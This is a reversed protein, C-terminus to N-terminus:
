CRSFSINCTTCAHHESFMLEEDDKLITLYGNAQKLALEISDTLRQTIDNKIVIRDIIIDISHQKTKTLEIEESLTTLEGNIRARSFGMNLFKRIEEKHTGKANKVVPALIQIKTNAPYLLISNVIQQPSQGKIEKSCKPCYTTGIKTFLIRLYDYIETITGVTSRPNRGTTKQNIAISPSLGTIAEVNPPQQSRYM